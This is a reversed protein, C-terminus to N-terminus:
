AASKETHLKAELASAKEERLASWDIAVVWVGEEASYEVTGDTELEEGFITLRQGAQLSIQQRALDEVTGICNLRVRGQADANHFDAFVRKTEM